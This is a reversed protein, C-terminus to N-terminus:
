ATPTKCPTSDSPNGTSKTRFAAADLLEVGNGSDGNGACSLMCATAAMLFLYRKM